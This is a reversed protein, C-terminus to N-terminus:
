IYFLCPTGNKRISRCLVLTHQTKIRNQLHWRSILMKRLVVHDKVLLIKPTLHTLLQDSPIKKTRKINKDGSFMGWACMKPASFKIFDGNDSSVSWSVSEWTIGFSLLWSNMSLGLESSLWRTSASEPLDSSFTFIGQSTRLYDGGRM